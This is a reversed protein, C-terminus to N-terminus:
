EVVFPFERTITTDDGLNAIITIIWDGGMTWEFPTTYVGDVGGDAAAVVPIMGAHTMDGKIILYADNIPNGDADHMIVTLTTPSVATEAVVSVTMQVGSEDAQQSNRACAALLLLLLLTLKQMYLHVPCPLAM